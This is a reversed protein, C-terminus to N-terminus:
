GFLAGLAGALLVMTPEQTGPEDYGFAQVVPWKEVTMKLDQGATQFDRLEKQPDRVLHFVM